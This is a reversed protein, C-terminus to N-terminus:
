AAMGRYWDKDNASYSKEIEYFGANEAKSEAHQLVEDAWETKQQSPSVM